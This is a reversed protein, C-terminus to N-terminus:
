DEEGKENEEDFKRTQRRRKHWKRNGSQIVGKESITRLVPYLWLMM